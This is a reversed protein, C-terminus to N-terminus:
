DEREFEDCIDVECVMETCKDSEGNACHEKYYWKCDKCNNMKIGKRSWILFM